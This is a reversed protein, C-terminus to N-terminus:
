DIIRHQLKSHDNETGSSVGLRVHAKRIVTFSRGGERGLGLQTELVLFSCFHVRWPDFRSDRATPYRLRLCAGQWQAVRGIINAPQSGENGIKMLLLSGVIQWSILTSDTFIKVVSPNKELF